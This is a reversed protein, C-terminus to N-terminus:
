GGEKRNRKEKRHVEAKHRAVYDQRKFSKGCEDCHGGISPLGKEKAWKGHTNWVHRLVEKEEKAERWECDDKPCKQHGSM